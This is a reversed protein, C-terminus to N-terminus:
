PTIYTTNISFIRISYRKLDTGCAGYLGLRGFRLYFRAVDRREKDEKFLVWWCVEDWERYWKAVLAWWMAKGRVIM